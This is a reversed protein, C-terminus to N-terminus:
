RYIMSREDEDTLEPEHAQLFMEDDFDRLFRITERGSSRSLSVYLNFLSLGSTPPPAIDIVVYPITQGQARYDTFSDAGTIPFQTRTVTRAKGDVRIQMSSSVRQIPIVGDELHPLTAARTRSLKVLICEPLFKLHVTSGDELPPENHNLIINQTNTLGLGTGKLKNTFYPEFIKSLSEEDIGPGNDTIAVM